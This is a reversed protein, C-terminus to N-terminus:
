PAVQLFEDWHSDRAFKMLGYDAAVATFVSGSSFDVSLGHSGPSNSNHGEWVLSDALAARVNACSTKVGAPVTDDAEFRLCLDGIDRYVRVSTPSYSQANNRVTQIVGALTAKNTNLGDAMASLATVLAPLKSTDVVSQTIKRSVYAPNNVMGDVFGKSLNATTDDPNDRFGAFVTHYPYGEAPPSEESGAVYDCNDKLEYAVEVMQMLSCDWAVIAFHENGLAQNIQWTNISTGAEDDYSFGRTGYDKASRRWGNGHNWVVLVYRDAPFNTKGWTIFDRLTQPNGMDLPNGGGDKLDTQLLQSAVVDSSDPKVLYRRVGDFSSAPFASRSQKWQVVFRVDPNGAVQEMQNMNLTSASYLDNAANMYVLVTWKTRTVQFPNVTVSSSARVGTGTLSASVQGTGAVDANLVGSQNVTGIAGDATWVLKAPPFFAASGSAGAVAAVFKQVQGEVLTVSGPYVTMTRPAEANTTVVPASKGVTASNSCLDVVTSATGLVTGTANPGSYLTAVFQYVGATIQNLTLTTGSSANLSDSRVPKGDQDFIQLLQSASASAPGWNTSYEVKADASTVPCAGLVLNGGGSSTGGGGGGCGILVGAALAVIGWALRM